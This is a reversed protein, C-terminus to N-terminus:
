FGREEVVLKHGPTSATRTFIIYARHRLLDLLEEYTEDDCSYVTARVRAEGKQKFIEGM